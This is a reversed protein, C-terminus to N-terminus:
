EPHDGLPRGEPDPHIGFAAGIHRQVYGPAARLTEPALRLSNIADSELISALGHMTSWVYLADLALTERPLNRGASRHIRGVVDRLMSMATITSPTDEFLRM